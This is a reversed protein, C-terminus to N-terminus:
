GKKTANQVNTRKMKFEKEKNPDILEGTEENTQPEPSSEEQEQEGEDPIQQQMMQQDYTDLENPMGLEQKTAETEAKDELAPDKYSIPPTGGFVQTEWFKSLLEEQSLIFQEEKSITPIGLLNRVTNQVQLDTKNLVGASVANVINGVRMSASEPDLQNDDEFFGFDHTIGFNWILLPKVVKDIMQDRIQYIVARIQSDMISNHQKAVSNVGLTGSGEEFILKPIGYAKMLGDNLINLAVTWFGEKTDVQLPQLSNKIDTVIISNNELNMMQKMLSVMAPETRPSGDANYVPNGNGDVIQVTENSDAKGLWLGSGGMKGAVLMETLIAQKAKYYQYATASEPDGYVQDYAGINASFGHVIHLIKSYPVAIKKGTPEQYILNKILGSEGEFTVRTQDLINITKLYIEKRSSRRRDFVIEATSFGLPMASALQGVKHAFSGQIEDLNDQVWKQIYPDKYRYKGFLLSARLSKLEICSRVVSDKRAMKIYESIKIDTNFIEQLFEQTVRTITSTYQGSIPTGIGPNWKRINSRSDKLSM